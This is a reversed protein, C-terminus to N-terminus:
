TMKKRPYICRMGSAIAPAVAVSFRSFVLKDEEIYIASHSTRSIKRLAETVKQGDFYAGVRINDGSVVGAWASFEDYDIDTNASSKTADFGGHSTM